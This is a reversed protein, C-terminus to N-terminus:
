ILSVTAKLLTCKTKEVYKCHSHADFGDLRLGSESKCASCTKHTVAYSPWEIVIKHFRLLLGANM